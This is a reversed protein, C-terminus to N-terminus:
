NISDVALRSLVDANGHQIGRRYSITLNYRQLALAWKSLKAGHPASNTLYTLPNHDSVVQIKGGFVCTDFKKLAGLVCFAEREITSWKMQTPTLKKTFFAIPLEKGVDNHQALCAGIATASADTYLWFPCGIDPTHLTPMIILEDKTKVFAEGAEVSWPLVNPVKRKTLDTLPLVIESFNPIYDRYYSALGLFSRLEKKTSPRSLNRLVEAKEPDPSHQGSGVIHCLFKVRKQGFACKELNVALGVERLSRFFSDFPLVKWQFHGSHTLFATFHRAEEKMPIQWYGKTLDLASIFNAKGAEYLLDRSIKMPYADPITFGNLLRFDICLRVSGNKKAVCVVPHAWDSDSPEILDLELLEKIQRDVEDQLAIPVRYPKLRKPCCDPTVRVSHGEVKAHGPKSSFVDSCRGLVDSLVARRQFSLVGEMKRIHEWIDIQSKRISDAPAYHLDGFDEDQEFVLGVQQVRAIYPRIKNAHVEKSASDEMRRTYEPQKKEANGTAIEHARELNQRLNELYKETSRSVGLPINRKGKFDILALPGRPLRGYVMQYPSLGTTSHPVERYAFLLCPLHIDWDNGHDQVNKGLMEKLTKNWREVTGMSEPHGPTAFRPAAGIMKLFEKTLLATFNTGQDTCIVGPFGTATFIKLLIDCTTKATINRLPIAEAWCTCVDVACIVFKHRRRSPPELPGICNVSWVEFPNEPRVIHQIPIRDRYTIARRVQCQRCSEEGCIYETHTLVGDRIAYANGETRAMEWADSLTTDSMQSEIFSTRTEESDQTSGDRDSETAILEISAEIDTSPVELEEKVTDYCDLRSEFKHMQINEKLAEFAATSPLLDSVLKKSVACTAPVPEHVEDYINMEFIRLPTTEREGFASSIEIYGEGEYKIGSTFDERIVSIQAGSDIIGTMTRPGLKVQVTELEM